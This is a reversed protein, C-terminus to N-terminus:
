RSAERLMRAVDPRTHQYQEALQLMHQRARREGFSELAQWVATGARGLSHALSTALSVAWEAGRPVAVAAPIISKSISSNM